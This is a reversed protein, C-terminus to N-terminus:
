VTYTFDTWQILRYVKVEKFWNWFDESSDFGDNHFFLQFEFETLLTGNIWVRKFRPEIFIHDIRKCTTKHHKKFNKTRVGTCHDLVMGVKIRENLDERLTHIKKGAKINEIANPLTYGINM